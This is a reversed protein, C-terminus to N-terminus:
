WPVGCLAQADGEKPTSVIVEDCNLAPLGVSYHLRWKSGTEGPESVLTGDM